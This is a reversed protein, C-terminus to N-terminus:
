QTFEVTYKPNDSNPREFTLGLLRPNWDQLELTADPRRVDTRQPMPRMFLAGFPGQTLAGPLIRVLGLLVHGHHTGVMGM